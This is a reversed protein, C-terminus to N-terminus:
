NRGDPRAAMPLDGFLSPAPDSAAREISLMRMKTQVGGPASFGGSKGGAALV